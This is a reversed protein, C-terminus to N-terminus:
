KELRAKTRELKKLEGQMTLIKNNVEVLKPNTKGDDVSGIKLEIANWSELEVSSLPFYGTACFDANNNEAQAWFTSYGETILSHLTAIWSTVSNGEPPIVYDSRSLFKEGTEPDIIVNEYFVAQKATLNWRRDYPKKEYIM